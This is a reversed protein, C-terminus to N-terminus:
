VGVDLLAGIQGFAVVGGDGAGKGFDQSYRVGAELFIVDADSAAIEGRALVEVDVNRGGLFQSEWFESAPIAPEYTKKVKEKSLRQPRGKQQRERERGRKRTEAVGALL